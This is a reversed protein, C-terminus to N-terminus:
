DASYEESSKSQATLRENLLAGDAEELQALSTRLRVTWGRSGKELERTFSLHKWISDHYIPLSREVPLWVRANVKFRLVFPDSQSVFLPTHDIFPGELVDLLGCWRSVRTVYCVLTDGQKVRSAVGQRRLPFGSISQSSNTFARHTEPSFLDIFYAM